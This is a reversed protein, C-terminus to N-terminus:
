PHPWLAGLGDDFSQNLGNLGVFTMSESSPNFQGPLLEIVAACAVSSFFV